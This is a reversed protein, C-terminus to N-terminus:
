PLAGRSAYAFPRVHDGSQKFRFDKPIAPTEVEEYKTGPTAALGSPPSQPSNFTDVQGDLRQRDGLFDSVTSVPPKPTPPNVTLLCQKREAPDEHKM